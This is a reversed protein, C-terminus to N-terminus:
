KQQAIQQWYGTFIAWDPWVAEQKVPKSEILCTPPRNIITVFCSFRFWYFLLDTMPVTISGRIIYTNEAGGMMMLRRTRILNCSNRNVYLKCKFAVNIFFVITMEKNWYVLVRHWFSFKRCLIISCQNSANQNISFISCSSQNCLKLITTEKIPDPETHM